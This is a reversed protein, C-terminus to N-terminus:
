AAVRVARGAQNRVPCLRRGRRPLPGRRRPPRRGVKVGPRPPLHEGPPRGPFAERQGRGSARGVRVPSRRRPKGCWLRWLCWLAKHRDTPAATGIVWSVFRRDTAILTPRTAPASVPRGEPEDREPLAFPTLPTGGGSGEPRPPSTDRTRFIAVPNPPGLRPHYWAAANQGRPRPRPSMPGAPPPLGAPGRRQDRSLRRGDGSTIPRAAHGLPGPGGDALPRRAPARGPHRPRGPPPAFAPPQGSPWLTLEVALEYGAADFPSGLGLVSDPPGTSEPPPQTDIM